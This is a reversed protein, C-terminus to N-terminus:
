AAIDIGPRSDQMLRVLGVADAVLRRRLPVVGSRPVSTFIPLTETRGGHHRLSLSVRAEIRGFDRDHHVRDIRADLVIM